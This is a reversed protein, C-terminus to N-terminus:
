ARSSVWTLSFALNDSCILAVRALERLMAM